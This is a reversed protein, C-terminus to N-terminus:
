MGNIKTEFLQLFAIADQKSLSFATYGTFRLEIYFQKFHACVYIGDTHSNDGIAVTDSYDPTLPEQSTSYSSHTKSYNYMAAANASDAYDIAYITLSAGSTGTIREDLVGSLTLGPDSTYHWAEGDIGAGISWSAESYYVGSNQITWGTVDGNIIKLKAVPPSIVSFVGSTDYISSNLYDRVKIVFQNSAQTSDIIWLFETDPPFISGTGLYQTSPFTKGGDLSYFIVVSSIANTDSISWRIRVTDGVKYQVGSGGTPSLLKLPIVLKTTFHWMPGRVTDTGISATVYWYYTKDFMLATTIPVSTNKGQYVLRLPSAVTDLFVNYVASDEKVKHWSLTLYIPQDVAGNAPQPMSPLYPYVTVMVPQSYTISRNSRKDQAKVYYAFTYPATDSISSYPTDCYFTDTVLSLGSIQTPDQASKTTDKRFVIYGAVTSDHENNWSVTVIGRLTDYSAKLGAPPPPPVGPDRVLHKVPLFTTTNAHVVVATDYATLYGYYSYAVEYTDPPVYSICFAGSSDTIAIFSTGPVFVTVGMKNSSNFDVSGSIKGPAKLTDVGVDTVTLTDHRIHRHMASLTDTGDVKRCEITYTGAAISDFRYKGVADTITSDLAISAPLATDGHYLRVSANNAPQGNRYDVLCGTIRNGTQTEDGGGANPTNCFLLALLFVGIVIAALNKM